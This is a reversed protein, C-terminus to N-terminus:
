LALSPPQSEFALNLLPARKNQRCRHFFVCLVVDEQTAGGMTCAHVTQGIHVDGGVKQSHSFILQHGRVNKNCLPRCTNNSDPVHHGSFQIQKSFHAWCNCIWTFFLHTPRTFLNPQWEKISRLETDSAPFYYITVTKESGKRTTRSFNRISIVLRQRSRASLRDADGRVCRDKSVITMFHVRLTM